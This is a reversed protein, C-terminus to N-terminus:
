REFAAVGLRKSNTFQFLIQRFLIQTILKFCKTNNISTQCIHPDQLPSFTVESLTQEM